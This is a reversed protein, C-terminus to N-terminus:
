PSVYIITPSLCITISQPLIALSASREAFSNKSREEGYMWFVKAGNESSYDFFRTGQRAMGAFIVASARKQRANVLLRIPFADDAPPQVSQHRDNGDPQPIGFV